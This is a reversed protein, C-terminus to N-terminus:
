KIPTENKTPKIYEPPNDGGVDFDHYSGPKYTDYNPMPAKGTVGKEIDEKSFAPKRTRDFSGVNIPYGPKLKEVKGGKELFKKMKEDREKQSMKPRMDDFEPMDKFSSM